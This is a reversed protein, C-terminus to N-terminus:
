PASLLEAIADPLEARRARAIATAGMAAVAACRAASAVDFVVVRAPRAVKAAAIAALAREVSFKPARADFAVVAPPDTVAAVLAGYADVADVTAQRAELAHRVAKVIADTGGAVLVRPPRALVFEPVPLGARECFRRVDAARLRYQNGPTRVSALRGARIWEHM